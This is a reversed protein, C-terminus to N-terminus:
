RHGIMAEFGPVQIAASGGTHAFYGPAKETFVYGLTLVRM